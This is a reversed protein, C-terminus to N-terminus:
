LGEWTWEKLRDMMDVVDEPDTGHLEAEFGATRLREQHTEVLTRARSGLVYSSWGEAGARQSWEAVGALFGYISAWQRWEPLDPERAGEREDQSSGGTGRSAPGTRYGLLATWPRTDARYTTPHGTSRTVFGARAMEGLATRVARDTYGTAQVVRKVTRERGGSALLFTLADGKSGVGLGARMRLMLAAPARLDLVGFPKGRPTPWAPSPERVLRHWRRDGAERAYRAWDGVRQRVREPFRDALSELRQVSILDAGEDAWAGLVDEMRREAEATALSVLVLAEPDVVSRPSLEVDAVVSAGLAAWQAWASRTATEVAIRRVREAAEASM